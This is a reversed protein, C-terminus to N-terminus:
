LNSGGYTITFDLKVDEVPLAQLESIRYIYFKKYDCVAMLDEDFDFAPWTNALGFYYNETTEYNKVAKGSVLPFRSVVHPKDYSGDDQRTGYNPAWVYKAGSKTKEIAINNGHSFCSLAMYDPATTTSFSKERKQWGIHNRYTGYKQTIYIIDEEPDYDFGQPVNTSNKGLTTSFLMDDTIEFQSCPTYAVYNVTFLKSFKGFRIPLNVSKMKGDQGPTLSVTVTFDEFEEKPEGSRPEVNIWKAGAPIEIDWKSNTRFTLTQPGTETSKFNFVTGSTFTLVPRNLEGEGEEKGCACALAAASVLIIAKLAKLNWM